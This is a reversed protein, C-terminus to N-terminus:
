QPVIGTTITYTGPAIAPAFSYCIYFDKTTKSPISVPPTLANGVTSETEWVFPGCWPTWAPYVGLLNTRLQSAWGFQSGIGGLLTKPVKITFTKGTKTGTAVIGNACVGSPCVVDAGSWCTAGYDQYHWLGDSWDAIYVQFIPTSSDSSIVLGVGYQPGNPNTDNLYFTWLIFQSLDTKYIQGHAFNPNVQGSGPQNVTNFPGLTGFSNYYSKTIGACDPTCSSDFNVTGAVSMQNKLTHEFCFKEGGPAQEPITDTVQSAPWALNDLLISQQVNVNATITGYYTLLTASGVGILLVSVVVIVPIEKGLIRLKRM